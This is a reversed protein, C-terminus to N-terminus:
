YQTVAALLGHFSGDVGFDGFIIDSEIFNAATFTGETYPVGVPVGGALLSTALTNMNASSQYAVNPTGNITANLVQSFTGIISSGTATNFDFDIPLVGLALGGAIGIDVFQVFPTIALNLTTSAGIAINATASLDRIGISPDPSPLPLGFEIDAAPATVILGPPSQAVARSLSHDVDILSSPGAIGEFFTNLCGTFLFSNAALAVLSGNIRDTTPNGSTPVSVMVKAVANVGGATRLKGLQSTTVNVISLTEICSEVASSFSNVHAQFNPNTQDFTGFVVLNKVTM